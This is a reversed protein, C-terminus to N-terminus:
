ASASAPEPTPAAAPTNADRTFTAVVRKSNLMYATWLAASVVDGIASGVASASEGSDQKSGSLTIVLEIVAWGVLSWTLLIYAFPYVRQRTFLLYITQGGAVLLGCGAVVLVFYGLKLLQIALDGQGAGIGNWANMGFYPQLGALSILLAIPLACTHLAPLILWGRIGSPADAPVARQAEPVVRQRLWRALLVGGILGLVAGIGLIINAAGGSSAKSGGHTFWYSADDRVQKLKRAYEDARAADVHDARTRFEYLAELQQKSYTVNSRYVFAPDEVTVAGAAADWPEPLLVTAKYRVNTPHHIELPAARHTQKPASAQSVVIHPNVDFRFSGDDEKAFAPEIYYRETVEIRNENRNDRANMQAAQKIAPYWDRYYDLYTRSIEASTSSQLDRRMSDADPGRYVTTVTLVGKGEIGAKLNFTETVETTPNRLVEDPISEFDRVGPEIVLAAGYRAQAMSRLSGGQLTATADFWYTQGGNRIRVVAHDFAGPSPLQKAVEQRLDMNVLAARADIGMANLLTVLLMVKDKCDGYRRQLVRAADTPKYAGPGIEIGTYRVQDQVFRLALLIREADTAASTKWGEVLTKMDASLTGRQYLPVAWDVVERWSSWESLSIRPYLIHWSPRDDEDPIGALDRWQWVTEELDGVRGVLPKSQMGTEVVRVHRDAPQLLRLRSWRVPTSWQTTYTDFYRNGLTADYCHRSYSYGIIDGPRIDELVLSLTLTGDLLGQELRSERQLVSMRAVKLQDIVGGGRRVQLSHLAIREAQPDFGITITSQDEVGAESVIQEVFHTYIDAGRPHLRIQRDVVLYEVGDPAETTQTPEPPPLDRRVWEPTAEITYDRREQAPMEGDARAVPLQLLLGLLAVVARMTPTLMM